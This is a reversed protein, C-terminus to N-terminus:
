NLPVFAMRTARGSWFSGGLVLQDYLGCIKEIHGSKLNNESIQSLPQTILRLLTLVTPRHSSCNCLHGRYESRLGGGWVCVYKTLHEARVM